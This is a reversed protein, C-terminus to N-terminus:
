CHTSPICKSIYQTIAKISNKNNYSFWTGGKTWGDRSDQKLYGVATQTLKDYYLRADQIALIESYMYMGCTNSAPGGKAGFTHQFPSCCEGQITANIGFKQWDNGAM